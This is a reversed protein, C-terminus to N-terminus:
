KFFGGSPGELAFCIQVQGWYSSLLGSLKLLGEPLPSLATWQQVAWPHPDPCPSLQPGASCRQGLTCTAKHMEPSTVGICTKVLSNIGVFGAREGEREWRLEEGTSHGRSRHLQSSTKCLQIFDQVKVGEMGKEKQNNKLCMLTGAWSGASCWQNSDAHKQALFMSSSGGSSSLSPLIPGCTDWVAILTHQQPVM